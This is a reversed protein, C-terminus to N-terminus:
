QAQRPLRMSPPPTRRRLARVIARIGLAIAVMRAFALFGNRRCLRACRFFEGLAARATANEEIPIDGVSVPTQSLEVDYFSVSGPSHTGTGDNGINQVLSRGPYLTLLEHLFCSASWRVAWSDNKGAIQEILMDSMPVSRDFDFRRVLKRRRLEDLLQRGNPNYIQWRNRWTAWGWCDAGRIFFTEPVPRRLPYCYGSISGVRPEKRYRALSENMFKLFYPSVAIDDEIVILSDHESLVHSIGSTINRALGYNEERLVLNVAKFGTIDQLVRRTENVSASAGADKAADSFVYLLSDQAEPNARLADLTLRTHQPRSYAFLAIPSKMIFHGFAEIAPLARAPSM